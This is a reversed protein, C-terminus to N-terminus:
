LTATPRGTPIALWNILAALQGGAGPRHRRWGPVVVILVLTEAELRSYHHVEKPGLPYELLQMAPPVLWGSRLDQRYLLGLLDKTELQNLDVGAIVRGVLQILHAAVGVAFSGSESHSRVIQIWADM